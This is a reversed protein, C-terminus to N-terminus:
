YLLKIGLIGILMIQNWILSRQILNVRVFSSGKLFM